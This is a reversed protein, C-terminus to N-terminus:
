KRPDALRALLLNMNASITSMSARLQRVDDELAALRRETSPQSADVDAGPGMFEGVLRNLREVSELIQKSQRSRKTPSSELADEEQGDGGTHASTDRSGRDESNTTAPAESAPAPAEDRRRKGNSTPPTRQVAEGGIFRAEVSRRREGDGSSPSQQTEKHRRKAEVHTGLTAELLPWYDPLRLSGVVEGRQLRGQHFRVRQM